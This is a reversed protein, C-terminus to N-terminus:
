PPLDGMDALYTPEITDSMCRVRLYPPIKMYGAVDFLGEPLTHVNYQCERELIVINVRGDSRKCSRRCYSHLGIAKIMSCAPPLAVFPSMPIRSMLGVSMWSRAGMKIPDASLTLSKRRTRSFHLFSASFHDDLCVCYM